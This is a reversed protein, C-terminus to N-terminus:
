GGIRGADGATDDFVYLSWNGNPDFGNFASLATVYPGAPAPAALEDEPLSTFDTPRYTGSQIASAGAPLSNTASDDFNLVVNTISRSAGADSMLMVKQGAPSVLLMDIDEPLRHTLNSITVTVKGILGAIG